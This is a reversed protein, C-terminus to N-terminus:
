SCMIPNFRMSEWLTEFLHQTGQKVLEKKLVADYKSAHADLARPTITPEAVSDAVVAM